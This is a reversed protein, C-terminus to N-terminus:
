AQYLKLAKERQVSHEVIPAPYKKHDLIPKHLDKAKVDSLEPIYKKIYAGEPDFKKSQTWPNFIRFYPQADCGTSAAWQWGGNNAALDGDLLKEMFYREGKRWDILLDKTLFSAVIMRVRNHMKGTTKLQRMGADVIPFGTKGEKWRKFYQSNNEWKLGQYKEYFAEKEVRPHRFLIHYFFERWILEKLFTKEANQSEKLENLKLYTIIQATTISGNKLFMALDSTAKLSPVDRAENYKGIKIEFGKLKKLAELSGAPPIEIDVYKQNEELFKALSDQPLHEGFLKRWSFNFIRPTKEGDLRGKLYKLGNYQSAIRKQVEDTEFIIQWKKSFPTYVKYGTDKVRELEHPEIILHDRFSKIPISQGQHLKSIEKDRKLAFPEYDRCFTVQSPSSINLEELLQYLELFGKQPVSNLVLLDSGVARLEKKLAVLTNLFFQFRNHSFDTRKLFKEDFFFVGLVKKGTNQFQYQLAPNGAFRLDRRFWHIGYKQNAM